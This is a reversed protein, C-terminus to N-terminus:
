TSFKEAHDSTMEAPVGDLNRFYFFMGLLIIAGLLLARISVGFGNSAFGRASEVRAKAWEKWDGWNKQPEWFAYLFMAISVVWALVNDSNFENDNSLFFTLLAAVFIGATLSNSSKRGSRAKTSPEDLRTPIDLRNSALSAAFFVMALGFFVISRLDDNSFIHSYEAYAAALIAAFTLGSSLHTSKFRV